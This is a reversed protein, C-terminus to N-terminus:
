SGEAKNVKPTVSAEAEKYNDTEEATITVVKGNGEEVTTFSNNTYVLEAENHNLIAGTSVVQKEGTYTYETQVGSVDIVAEAKNVKLTVSAEAEKYNDTEEATITM